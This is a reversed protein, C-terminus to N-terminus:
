KNQHTQTDYDVGMVYQGRENNGFHFDQCQTPQGDIIEVARCHRLRGQDQSSIFEAIAEGLTEGKPSAIYGTAKDTIKYSKKM